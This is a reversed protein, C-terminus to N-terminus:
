LISQVVGDGCEEIRCSASCGDGSVSYGDDCEEAGSIVDDGCVTEFQCTKGCGDGATTNGDDCQEGQGVQVLGDGCKEIQCTTGCGDGAVTNGDDCQEGPGSS